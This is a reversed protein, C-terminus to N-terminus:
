ESPFIGTLLAQRLTIELPEYISDRCIKLMPIIINDHDHARSSDLNQIIKGIAEVSLAVASLRRGTTYNIYNHLSSNNSILSCQKSFFSHFLEAKEKFDKIFRNNYYLPPILLTKKNNLFMKILSWYGKANKQTDNIKNAM